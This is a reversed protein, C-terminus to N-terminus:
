QASSTVPANQVASAAPTAPTSASPLLQIVQASFVGSDDKVGKVIVQEGATLSAVTTKNKKSMRTSVTFSIAQTSGDNAKIVMGSDTRSVIEGSLEVVKSTVISKCDNILGLRSLKNKEYKAGIYFAGGAVILIVLVAIVTRKNYGCVKCQTEETPM